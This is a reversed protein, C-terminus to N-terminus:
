ELCFRFMYLSNGDLAWQLSLGVLDRIIFLLRCDAGMERLDDAFHLTQEGQLSKLHQWSLVHLEIDLGAAGSLVSVFICLFSENEGLSTLFGKYEAEHHPWSHQFSRLPHLSEKVKSSLRCILKDWARPEQNLVHLSTLKQNKGPHLTWEWKGNGSQYQIVCARVRHWCWEQQPLILHLHLLCCM